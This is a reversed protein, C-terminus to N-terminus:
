PQNPRRQSREDDQACGSRDPSLCQLDGVAEVNGDGTEGRSRVRVLQAAEGGPIGLRPDRRAGGAGAVEVLEMADPDTGIGDGVDGGGRPRGHDVADDPGGPQRSRQGSEVGAVTEGAGVLLTEDGTAWQHHCCEFPSATLQNGDVALM